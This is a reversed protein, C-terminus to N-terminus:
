CYMELFVFDFKNFCKTPTMADLNISFIFPELDVCKTIWFNISHRPNWIQPMNVFPIQFSSKIPDFSKDDSINVCFGM